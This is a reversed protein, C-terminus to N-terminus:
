SQDYHALVALFDRERMWARRHHDVFWGRERFADLELAMSM